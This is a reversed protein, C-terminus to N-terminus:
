HPLHEALWDTDTSELGTWAADSGAGIVVLADGQQLLDALQDRIADAPGSCEILWSSGDIQRSDPM